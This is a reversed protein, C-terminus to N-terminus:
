CSVLGSVCHNQVGGSPLQIDRLAIHLREEVCGDERSARPMQVLGGRGAGGRCPQPARAEATRRRTKHENGTCKISTKQVTASNPARTEKRKPAGPKKSRMCRLTFCVFSLALSLALCVVFCLKPVEEM